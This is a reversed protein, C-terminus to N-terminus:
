AADCHVIRSRFHVGRNIGDTFRRLLFSQDPDTRVVAVKLHRAVATFGPGVDDAVDGTQWFIRPDIPDLRAIEVRSGSIGRKISVSKAVHRRVNEFRGVVTFCPRGQYARLVRFTNTSVSVYDFFIQDFGIKEKQAGLKTKPNGDIPSFAPRLKLAVM